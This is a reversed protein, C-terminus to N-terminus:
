PLRDLQREFKQGLRVAAQDLRHLDAQSVLRGDRALVGQPSRAALTVAAGLAARFGAPDPRLHGGRKRAGWFHVAELWTVEHALGMEWKRFAASDLAARVRAPLDLRRPRDARLPRRRSDALFRDAAELGPPALAYTEKGAKAFQGRAVLGRRGQVSWSLVKVDPASVPLRTKLSFHAPWAQWCTVALDALSFPSLGRGTLDRAALLIMQPRTPGDKPM